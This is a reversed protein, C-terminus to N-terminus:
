GPNDFYRKVQDVIDRLEAPKSIFQEAGLLISRERDEVKGKGTLILVPINRTEEDAKLQQLVELGDVDPMVLDLLILGPKERRAVSAAEKGGAHTIIEYGETSLCDRFFELTDLDDDVVMIRMPGAIGDIVRSLRNVADRLKATDIPKELYDLAGLRFGKEKDVMISLVIVPIDRTREDAQLKALLDFGNIDPLYIDLTIMDPRHERAIMLADKGTPALIVSFGEEELLMKVISAINADDEVVEVLKSMHHKGPREVSTRSWVGATTKKYIPLTFSFKSGIGEGSEAHIKCKHAEIIEKVIALGLGTGGYKRTSSGDVQFFRNFIRPLHEEPIGIGSDIVSVTLFEDEEHPRLVTVKIRGDGSTFKEANLLLNLLVERIRDPDVFVDPLNPPLETTFELEKSKRSAELIATEVCSEVLPRLATPQVHLKILGSTVKSFDLLSSIMRSLHNLNDRAVALGKTQRDNITGLKGGLIFDVYGKTSVLPAKLEHSINALFDSKLEDLKMVERYADELKQSNEQAKDRAEQLEHMHKRLKAAMWNVSRALEATEDDTMIELPQEFTEDAIRRTAERIQNLPRSIDAAAFYSIVGVVVVILLIIVVDDTQLPGTPSAFQSAPLRGVLYRGPGMPVAAVIEEESLKPLYPQLEINAPLFRAMSSDKNILEQWHRLQLRLGAVGQNRLLDSTQANQLLAFFVLALAILLTFSLLLRLLIPYRMKLALDGTELAIKARIRQVAQRMLHFHIFSAAFGASVCAMFLYYRTSPPLMLVKLSYIVVMIGGIVWSLLSLLASYLPFVAAREEAEHPSGTGKLYRIVPNLLVRNVPVPSLLFVPLVVLVYLLAKEMNDFTLHLLKYYYVLLICAGVMVPIALKFRLGQFYSEGGTKAM